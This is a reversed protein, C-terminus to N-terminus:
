MGWTGDDRVKWSGAAVTGGDVPITSGTVFSALDSALFVIVAACEEPTGTRGLPTPQLGPILAGSDEALGADGPTPIMDPAVCNVRISRAGLEVALSQTFQQVAAKMAAYVAFGPAAHYAEVSTVNIISGGDAMLPMAARVCNTVTSFNESVLAQEGKASVDTFPAWFGGGANNVLVDVPGMEAHARAMFADVREADRVDFSEALVTAGREEIEAATDALDDDLMDCVAINAGLDAFALATAKGIGRAAGTVVTNRGTLLIQSAEMIDEYCLSVSVGLRALKYNHFRWYSVQHVDGCVPTLADGMVQPRFEPVFIWQEPIGLGSVRREPRHGFM